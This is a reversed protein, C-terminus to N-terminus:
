PTWFMATVALVATAVAVAGALSGAVLARLTNGGTWREVVGALGSPKPAIIPPRSPEQQPDNVPLGHERMWRRGLAPALQDQLGHEVAYEVIPQAVLPPTSLDGLFEWTHGREVLETGFASSFTVMVVNRLERQPLVGWMQRVWFDNAALLRRAERRQVPDDIQGHRRIIQLIDKYRDLSRARGLEDFLDLWPMAALDDPVIGARPRAPAPPQRGDNPSPVVAPRQVPANVEAPAGAHYGHVRGSAVPTRGALAHIRDPLTMDRRLVGAADLWESVQKAGGRLYREAALRAVETVPDGPPEEDPVVLRRDPGGIATEDPVFAFHPRDGRVTELDAEYTSFTRPVLLGSEALQEFQALVDFLGALLPVRQEDDAVISLPTGPARLVADLLATLPQERGALRRAPEDAAGRRPLSGMDLTPLLQYETAMAERRWGPWGPLRLATWADLVAPSGILVHCVDHRNDLGGSRSRHLVVARGRLYVYCLSTDPRNTDESRLRERLLHNWQRLEADEISSGVPGYGNGLLTSRAWDFVIQDIAHRQERPIV